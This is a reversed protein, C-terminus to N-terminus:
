LLKVGVGAVLNGDNNKQFIPSIPALLIGLIILPLIIKKLKLSKKM